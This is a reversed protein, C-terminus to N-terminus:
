PAIPLAVGVITRNGGISGIRTAAGTALNISYLGPKTQGDVQLAAFAIDDGIPSYIDFGTRRVVNIGLPGVTTLVGGNPDQTVLVDLNTDIDYLTTVPTGPYNNTYAGGSCVPDIGANVDAIGYALTGDVQIGPTLTDTDVAAGTDPNIRLNQNATSLVRLRDPVPNFDVGFGDDGGALDVGIGAGLENTKGTKPNIRYTRDQNSVGYLEGTAPRFDIGIMQEGPDMGRIRAKRLITTPDNSPFALLENRTTLAIAVPANGNVDFHSPVMAFDATTGGAQFSTPV